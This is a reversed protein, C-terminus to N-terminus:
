LFDELLSSNFKPGKILKIGNKSMQVDLGATIFLNKLNDLETFEKTKMAKDRSALIIEELKSLDFTNEKVWAGMQDSLLGLIQASSKLEETNGSKAHGHFFAFITVIPYAIWVGIKSQSAIAIGLVVVSLSIVGEVQPIPIALLGILAGIFLVLVFCAPLGLIHKGGIQISLLGVAIMAILHDFGLIPHLLGTLVSATGGVAFALNTSLLYLLATSFIYKNM